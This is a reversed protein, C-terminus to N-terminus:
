YLNIEFKKMFRQKSFNKCLFEETIEFMLTLFANEGNLSRGSRCDEMEWQLKRFPLINVKSEIIEKMKYSLLQRYYCLAHSLNRRGSIVAFSRVCVFFASSLITRSMKM